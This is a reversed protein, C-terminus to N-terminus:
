DKEALIWCNRGAAKAQYMATDAQRYVAEADKIENLDIVTGGISITVRNYPSKDHAINLEYVAKILRGLIPPMDDKSSIELIIVFEEGGVRFVQDASSRLGTNLANAVQRLTKDGALHGYADNYNKFFDIDAVVLGLLNRDPKERSLIAKVYEDFGRRNLVGTLNDHLSLYRASRLYHTTIAILLLSFVVFLYILGIYASANVSTHNLKGRDIEYVIYWNIENLPFVMMDLGGSSTLIEPHIATIDLTLDRSGLGAIVKGDSGVLYPTGFSSTASDLLTRLSSIGMDISLVGIFEDDRYVPKSITVMLGTGAEDNYLPSWVLMRRPDNQPTAITFFAKEQLIDSYFFDEPPVRPYMYIFGSRSTYYVWPLSKNNKIVQEFLPSLGLAMNIEAAKPTRRRPIDGRGTLNGIEASDRDVPVQLTYGGKESLPILDSITILMPLKEGRIISQAEADLIELTAEQMKLSNDFTSVLKHGQDILSQIQADRNKQFINYSAVTIALLSIGSFVLVFTSFRDTGPSKKM